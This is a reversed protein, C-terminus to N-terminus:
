RGVAIVVHWQGASWSAELDYCGARTFILDIGWFNWQGAGNQFSGMSPHAPDLTARLTANYATGSHTNSIDFWIPAGSLLDRGQLTVPQMINPGVAWIAKASPTPTPTPGLPYLNLTNKGPLLGIGQEWVPSIGELVAPDVFAGFHASTTM